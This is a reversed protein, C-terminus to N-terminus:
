CQLPGILYDGTDTTFSIKVSTAPGEFNGMYNSYVVTYSNTEGVNFTKDITYKWNAGTFFGQTPNEFGLKFDILNIDENLTVDLSTEDNGCNINSVSFITNPNIDSQFKSYCRERIYNDRVKACLSGDNNKVAVCEYCTTTDAHTPSLENEFMECISVDGTECAVDSYCLSQVFDTQIDACISKDEKLKAIKRYCSDKQYQDTISQCDSLSTPEKQTEPETQKNPDYCYRGTWTEDNGNFDYICQSGQWPLDEKIKTLAGSKKEWVVQYDQKGEEDYHICDKFDRGDASKVDACCVSVSEGNVFKHTEAGTQKGGALIGQLPLRFITQGEPTSPCSIKGKNMFYSAGFLIGLLVAIVLVVILFVKFSGKKNM